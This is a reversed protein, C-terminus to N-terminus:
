GVLAGTRADVRASVANVNSSVFEYEDRSTELNNELIIGGNADLSIPITKGAETSDVIKSLDMCEKFPEDKFLKLSNSILYIEVYDKGLVAHMEPKLGIAGNESKSIYKFIWVGAKGKEKTSLINGVVSILCADAFNKKAEAEMQPSFQKLSIGGLAARGLYSEGGTSASTTASSTTTTESTQSICASALIIISLLLISKRM